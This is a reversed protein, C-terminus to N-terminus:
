ISRMHIDRYPHIEKKSSKQLLLIPTKILSLLRFLFVLLVLLNKGGRKNKFRKGYATLISVVVVLHIEHLKFSDREM